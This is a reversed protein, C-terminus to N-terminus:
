TSFRDSPDRLIPGVGFTREAQNFLERQADHRHMALAGEGHKYSAYAAYNMHHILAVRGGM